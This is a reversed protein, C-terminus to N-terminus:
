IKLTKELFLMLWDFQVECCYCIKKKEFIRLIFQFSENIKKIKSFTLKLLSTLVCDVVFPVFTVEFEDSIELVVLETWNNDDMCCFGGLSDICIECWDFLLSDLTELLVIWDSEWGSCDSIEFPKSVNSDEFNRMKHKIKFQIFQNIRNECETWFINRICLLWIKWCPRLCLFVITIFFTHFKRETTHWFGNQEIKRWRKNKWNM